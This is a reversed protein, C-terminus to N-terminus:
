LKKMSLRNRWTKLKDHCKSCTKEIDGSNRSDQLCVPDKWKLCKGCFVEGCGRCHHPRRLFFTFPENCCCCMTRECTPIWSM